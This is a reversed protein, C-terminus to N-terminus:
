GVATAITGGGQGFFPGIPSNVSPFPNGDRYKRLIIDNRNLQEPPPAITIWIHNIMGAGQVNFIEKVKSDQINELRENNGGTRDYSSIRKITFDTQIKALDFLDSHYQAYVPKGIAIVMSFSFMLTLFCRGM